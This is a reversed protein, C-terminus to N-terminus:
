PNQPATNTAIRFLYEPIQYHVGAFRVVLNSREMDSCTLFEDDTIALLKDLDKIFCNNTKNHYNDDVLQLLEGSVASIQVKVRDLAVAKPNDWDVTLLPNPVWGRKSHFFPYPNIRAARGSEVEFVNLGFAALYNTAIQYLNNTSVAYKMDSARELGSSATEGLKMPIGYSELGDEALSYIYIAEESFTFSYNKVQIRAIFRDINLPPKKFLSSPIPPPIDLVRIENTNVPVDVPLHLLPARRDIFCLMAAVVVFKFALPTEIM